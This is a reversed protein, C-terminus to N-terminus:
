SKKRGVVEGRDRRKLAQPKQPFPDSEKEANDAKRGVKGSPNMINRKKRTKEKEKM